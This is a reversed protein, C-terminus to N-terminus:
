FCDAEDRAQDSCGCLGSDQTSEGPRQTAAKMDLGCTARAIAQGGNKAYCLLRLVGLVESVFGRLEENTNDRGLGADLISDICDSDFSSSTDKTSEIKGKQWDGGYLKLLYGLKCDFQKKKDVTAMGLWALM